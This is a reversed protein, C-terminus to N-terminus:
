KHPLPILMSVRQKYSRYVDGYFSILDREEFYIGVLIYGTTALAFLLHGATMVPTSWFAIIFGLYIPHRVFKYFLPSKFQLPSYERGTFYLWVQRLGFLDFHNILFSSILVILWGAFGLAVLAKSFLSPEVSWIIDKMPEWKWFILFLLLSAILVYTSREIPPPVIRTWWRKFGQRAMVSHQIAFAGLLLANVLLAHALPSEEGSDITKPVIRNTVFGIAYLFSVFFLLYSIIGYLLFLPKKM